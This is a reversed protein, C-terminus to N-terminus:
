SDLKDDFSEVGIPTGDKDLVLIDIKAKAQALKEECIQKLKVGKEYASVADDLNIKGTELSRVVQELEEMAQEFSLTTLDQESM